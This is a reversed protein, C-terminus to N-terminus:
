ESYNFFDSYKIFDDKTLTFGICCNDLAAVLPSFSGEKIKEGNIDIFYYIWSGNEFRIEWNEPVEFYGGESTSIYFECRSIM